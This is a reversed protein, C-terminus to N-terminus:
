LYLSLHLIMNVSKNMVISVYMGKLTKVAVMECSSENTLTGKYVVGFEGILSCNCLYLHHIFAHCLECPQNYHWMCIYVHDSSSCM